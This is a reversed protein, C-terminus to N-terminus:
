AESGLHLSHHHLAALDIAQVRLMCRFRDQRRFQHWPQPALKWRRYLLLQCLLHRLQDLAQSQRGVRALLPTINLV